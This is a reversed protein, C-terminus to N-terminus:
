GAFMAPPAPRFRLGVAIGGAADLDSAAKGSVEEVSADQELAARIADESETAHNERFHQTLFLERVSNQELAWKAEVAGTVGLGNANAESAIEAVRGADYADRLTSAGSRAAEAVDAVSSHIDLGSLTLVRGSAKSELVRALSAAVRSIGGLVIWGDSGALELMRASAQELMRTRGALLSRQAADRGTSGRTGVHFGQRAATGMHATEQVVHHARITEVRDPTGLMYRYLEAQRADVVAVVVPRNEKLARVYPALSPGTSWVAFTPTPVPLAHADYVGAATIFAAWGPSGVNAEFGALQGGLLEVCRDFAAREDRPADALWSRLDDLSHELQVRWSRQAAPDAATGDLYVTLVRKGELSRLLTVLQTRTLM